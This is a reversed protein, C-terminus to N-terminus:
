RNELTSQRKGHHAYLQMLAHRSFLSVCFLLLRVVMYYVITLVTLLQCIHDKKLSNPRIQRATQCKKNEQDPLEPLKASLVM